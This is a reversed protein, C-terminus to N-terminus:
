FQDFNDGLDSMTLTMMITIMIIRRASAAHYGVVLFGLEEEEEEMVFFGSPSIESIFLTILSGSTDFRGSFFESFKM